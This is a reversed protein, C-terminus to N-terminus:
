TNRYFNVLDGFHTQTTHAGTIKPAKTGYEFETQGIFVCAEDWLNSKIFANLTAAGGEVIVSQINQTYLEHLISMPQMDKIKVYTISDNKEDKVTNLVITTGEEETCKISRLTAKTDLIIRIPHNGEVERM